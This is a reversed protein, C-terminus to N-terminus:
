RGGSRGPRGGGNSGARKKPKGQDLLNGAGNKKPARKASRSLGRERKPALVVQEGVELGGQIEAMVDNTLGLQIPRVELGDPTLVEVTPRDATGAIAQVPVALVEGLDAVLIDVKASLGPRLGEPIEELRIETSYVKLDPNLWSDPPDPLRAVKHVVGPLSRDPFADVVVTVAQGEKVKEVVSEHVSVKVGLSTLDPIKIIPQRESISAGEQIADGGRWRRRRQSSAYVVLGPQTAYIRAAAIQSELKQFRATKLQEQERRARVDASKSQESAEARKRTRALQTEAEVLNSLLQEVQKRFDYVVYQSRATRARDLEIKRRELAIRDAEEEDRSVYGKELLQRTWKLKVEARRKEETALSIDSDLMRIMQLAEGELNERDLLALVFDEAREGGDGGSASVPQATRRVALLEAALAGGVYRDLDLRAFRVELEDKRIESANQQRQIDLNAVANEHASVSQALDIKQSNIKEELNSVDLQVLLKRDAVDQATLITGEPIIYLITAKGEVESTITQSRLAEVSGTELVTVRLPGRQVTHLPLDADEDGEATGLLRWAAFGGAVVLLLVLLPWPNRRSSPM